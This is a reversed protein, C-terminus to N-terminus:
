EGFGEDLYFPFVLNFPNNTKRVVYDIHVIVSGEKERPEVEVRIEEIRPEFAVLAIEVERRMSSLTTYDMTAFAYDWIGCGFEPNRIREGKKTGLIIRIAEKINEEESSTVMKGTNKDVRIPFSIGAGLFRKAEHENM